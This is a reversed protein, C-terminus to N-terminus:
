YASWRAKVPLWCGGDILLKTQWTLGGGHPKKKDVDDLALTHAPRRGKVNRAAFICPLAM